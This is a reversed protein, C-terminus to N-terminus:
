APLAARRAAAAAAGGARAAPELVGGYQGPAAALSVYGEGVDRRGGEPPRELPDGYGGGGGAEVACVEGASLELGSVKGSPFREVRGDARRVALANPLAPQGGFLGWPACATRESRANIVTEGVRRVVRRAGLGGGW